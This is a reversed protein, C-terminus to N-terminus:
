NKEYNDGKRSVSNYLVCLIIINNWLFVSKAAGLIMLNFILVFIISLYSTDYKIMNSFIIYIFAIFLFGGIMGGNVFFDLFTNHSMTATNMSSGFSTTNYSNIYSLIGPGYGIFPSDKIAEIANEWMSIREKNSDDNYSSIFYRNYMWAPIKSVIVNISLFSVILFVIIFLMKKMSLSKKLYIFLSILIGLFLSILSARSNSFFVALIIVIFSIIYYKKKSRYLINRFAYIAAVCIFAGFFNKDLMVGFFTKIGLFTNNLIINEYLMCLSAIFSVFIYSDIISDIDKVEYTNNISTIFWLYIIIQYFMQFLVNLSLGYIYISIFSSILFVFEIITLIKFSLDNKIKISRNNVVFYLLMLFVPLLISLISFTSEIAFFFLFFSLIIIKAPFSIKESLGIKM